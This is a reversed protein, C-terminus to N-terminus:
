ALRGREGQRLRGANVVTPLRLGLVLGFLRGGSEQLTRAGHGAFHLLGPTAIRAGDIMVGIVDGEAAALGVNVASAPSPSAQDIRILRFNGAFKDITTPALPPNSGNDVVIVEYDEPAIHRQYDASLSYLTRPAERAINFIVVVISISRKQRRQGHKQLWNLM